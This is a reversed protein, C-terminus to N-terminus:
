LIDSNSFYDVEPKVDSNFAVVDRRINDSDYYVQFIDNNRNHFTSFLYTGSGSFHKKPVKKLM